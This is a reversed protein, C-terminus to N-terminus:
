RYTTSTRQGSKREVHLSDPFWGSEDRHWERDNAEGTGGEPIQRAGSSRGTKVLKM